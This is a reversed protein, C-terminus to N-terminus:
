DLVSGIEELMKHPDGGLSRAIELFEIVDLRREGREFKSVYSQPRGLRESLEQQTLGAEKRAKVLLLLFRQYAATHITKM